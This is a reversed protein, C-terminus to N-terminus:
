LDEKMCVEKLPIAVRPEPMSSILEEIELVESDSDLEMECISLLTEADTEWVDEMEVDRRVVLILSNFFSSFFILICIASVEFSIDRKDSCQSSNESQVPQECVELQM